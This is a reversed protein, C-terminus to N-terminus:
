AGTPILLIWGHESERRESDDVGREAEDGDARAEDLEYAV